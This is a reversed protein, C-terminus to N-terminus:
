SLVEIKVMVNSFAVNGTLDDLVMEDTLDNVSVGAYQAAVDMKIGKRGHGYGHPLSVVGRMMDDTIEALVEVSGVRSSVKVLMKDSIGLAAADEPNLMLTCRNKGKMLKASNHLWSNCDRQHRRGILQWKQDNNEGFYQPPIDILTKRLRVLDNVLIDPTLQIKKDEHVLREPLCPQLDGLDFGSPNEILDELNMQYPGFQLGMEIVKEPKRAKFDGEGAMRHSIEQMIEWDYKTNEGKQFVPPSYKATNRISLMNFTIDYHSTELGTAPPLIIHAHRTTENLYIDISVMFDLQSFAKDLQEGNPTSLIPNGCNTIMAKIQGEGETLIEEAMASVSLEGMFEKLQRVRSQWRGFINRPKAGILIDIAPKAFMVGGAKDFNDTLINICNILWQCLGGFAQTSVGVRGYCIASKTNAFDLALQRINESSIGTQFAMKEPSFDSLVLEKLISVGETFDANEGLKVKNEAFLVVPNRM